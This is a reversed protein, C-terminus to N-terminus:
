FHTTGILLANVTVAYLWPIALSLPVIAGYASPIRYRFGGALALAGLKLAVIGPIGYTLLLTRALPNREVFGLEFGYLTLGLDVTFLVLVFLWLERELSLLTNTGHRIYRYIAFTTKDYDFSLSPSM